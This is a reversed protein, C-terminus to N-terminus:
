YTAGVQCSKSQANFYTVQMMVLVSVEYIMFACVLTSNCIKKEMGCLNLLSAFLNVFHLMIVLWLMMNMMACDTEGINLIFYTGVGFGLSVFVITMNFWMWFSKNERIFARYQRRSGRGQRRLDAAKTEEM